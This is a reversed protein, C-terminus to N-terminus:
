FDYFSSSKHIENITAIIADNLDCTLRLGLEKQAKSIAPVYYDIMNNTTNPTIVPVSFFEGIKSALDRLNVEQDSGVNYIPCENSANDAITMLWMVLDDAYMYSRFVKHEANVCIPRGKLGDEIFNGIAFHQNRSLYSGVFAFCRAISVSHGFMALNQIEMEADRKASAYNRRGIPMDLISQLKVGEDVRLMLSTQQGYVAGSSCYVIKSNQHYKKALSCYNIVASQINKREQTPSLLYNIANTSAAAHIVFDANPLEQCSSIDADILQVSDDILSPHSTNLRTASRSIIFVRNVGWYNLLGRRYVDLISKGFFGSGGIVMLTTM